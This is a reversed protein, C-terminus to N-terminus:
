TELNNELIENEIVKIAICEWILEGCLCHLKNGKVMETCAPIINYHGNKCFGGHEDQILLLDIGKTTIHEHNYM